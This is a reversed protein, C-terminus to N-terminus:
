RKTSKTLRSFWHTLSWPAPFVGMDFILHRQVATQLPWFEFKQNSVAWILCIIVSNNNHHNVNPFLQPTKPGYNTQFTKDSRSFFASENQQVFCFCLFFKWSIDFNANRIVFSWNTMSVQFMLCFILRWRWFGFWKNMFRHYDLYVTLTVGHCGFTLLSM